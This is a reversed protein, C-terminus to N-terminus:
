PKVPVAKHKAIDLIEPIWRAIERDKDREAEPLKKWPVLLNHHKRNNNRVPNYTWGNAIREACWDAHEAKALRELHREIAEELPQKWTKTGRPTAPEIVFDILTLHDAMRRVAARNSDKENGSLRAFDPQGHYKQAFKLNIAAALRDIDVSLLFADRQLLLREFDAVSTDLDLLERPPLDSRNLHRRAGDGQLTKVIREFSRAGFKYQPVKLLAHLLGPDIDLEDDDKLGLIGRLMIARRIPWSNDECDTGQRQNPGLVNLFGHLRSVFDPGKRLRYQRHRELAKEYASAEPDSLPERRAAEGDAAPAQPEKVGFTGHTEATGGAFVFICKGLPHIIQGEQFTGDQMPALLYQLWEYDRSDFEDWFAVPTVGQLVADRVRHFAGILETADRFQSLNFELFPAKPPLISEALARVGFSKGAGPPGFVGICLPKKQVKTDEYKRILTELTRLSEIDARDVTHLRGLRLAPVDELADIGYRTANGLGTLPIQPPQGAAPALELQTLITWQCGAQTRCCREPVEVAPLKQRNQAVTKGLPIVQIGPTDAGVPGHGLRLLEHKAEIGAAIGALLARRMADPDSFPSPGQADGDLALHHRMLHHAIAVTFCTQFGYVTGDMEREYEDELRSPDFLLRPVSTEEGLGGEMWFAGASGFTVMLHAASACLAKGAPNQRLAELTDEACQEWSLKTDIQLDMRRLDGATVVVILRDKVAGLEAWLDGCGLPRTTKLLFYGKANEALQPWLTRSAGHRFRLAGDDIVTLVPAVKPLKPNREFVFDDREEDLPGYGFDASEKIRWVQEKSNKAKAQATWVGFSRLQTPLDRLNKPIKLGLATAYRDPPRPTKLLAPKPLKAEGRKVRRRNEKEWASKVEDWALGEPNAAARLLDHTLAAGGPTEVLSAGTGAASSSTAPLGGYM